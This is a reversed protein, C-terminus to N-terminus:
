IGCAGDQYNKNYSTIYNKIKEDFDTKDIDKAKLCLTNIQNALEVENKFATLNERALEKPMQAFLFKVDNLKLIYLESFDNKSLSGEFYKSLVDPIFAVLSSKMAENNKIAKVENIMSMNKSRGSFTVTDACNISLLSSRNNYKKNNRNDFIKLNTRSISLNM